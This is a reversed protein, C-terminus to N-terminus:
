KKLVVRFLKRPLGGENFAERDCLTFGHQLAKVKEESFFHVIFGGMEYMEEGRHIGQRYHPDGTHRVTYVNLGGPKLVRYIEQNLAELQVTSLPMCYLMHSFCADFSEDEFPLATRVDHQLAKWLPELHHQSAKQRMVNVGEQTYDVATVELGNKAFFFADRGQGAGLELLNKCGNEQFLALSKFAPYSPQVGFMENMKAFMSEWHQQQADLLSHM